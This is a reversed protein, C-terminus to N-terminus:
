DLLVTSTLCSALHADASICAIAQRPGATGVWAAERPDVAPLSRWIGRGNVLIAPGSLPQNVALKTQGAVAEALLPRCWIEVESHHGNGATGAPKDAAIRRVRTVLDSTGCVLQCVARVYVLPLLRQWAPDEYIIVHPRM